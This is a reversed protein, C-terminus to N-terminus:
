LRLLKAETDIDGDMNITERITHWIYKNNMIYWTRALNLQSVFDIPFNFRMWFWRSPKKVIHNWDRFHIDFMENPTLDENSSGWFNYGFTDSSVGLIKIIRFQFEEVEGYHGLKMECMPANAYSFPIGALPSMTFRHNAHNRMLVTSFNVDVETLPEKLMEPYNDAIEQQENEELFEDNSDSQFKIQLFFAEKYERDIESLLYEDLIISKATLIDAKNEFRLLERTDDIFVSLNCGKTVATIMEGVTINPLHKNVEIENYDYMYDFDIIALEHSTREGPANETNGVVHLGVSGIPIVNFGIVKDEYQGVPLTFCNPVFSSIHLALNDMFVTPDLADMANTTYTVLTSGFLINFDRDMEHVTFEITTGPRFNYWDTFPKEITRANRYGYGFAEDLHYLRVNFGGRYWHPHMVMCLRYEDEPINTLTTNFIAKDKIWPKEFFSGTAVLDGCKRVSEKIIYELYFAPSLYTKNDYNNLGGGHWNIPRKQIYTNEELPSIAIGHSMRNYWQPLAFPIDPFTAGYFTNLTENDGNIHIDDFEINRLNTDSRFANYRRTLTVNYSDAPSKYINMQAKMYLNGAVLVDVDIGPDKDIFANPNGFNKILRENHPNRPIKFNFSRNSVLLADEFFFPNQREFTISTDPYLNFSEGALTKIEIM